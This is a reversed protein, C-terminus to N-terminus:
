HVWRPSVMRMMEKHMSATFRMFREESAARRSGGQEFGTPRAVESREDRAPVLGRLRNEITEREPPKNEPSPTV